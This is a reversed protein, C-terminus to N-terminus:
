RQAILSELAYPGPGVRALVLLCVIYLLDIEYGPPGFV